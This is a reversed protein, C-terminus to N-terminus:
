DGMILYGNKRLTKWMDDPMSVSTFYDVEREDDPGTQKGCRTCKVFAAEFDKAVIRFENSERRIRKIKALERCGARACKKYPNQLESFFRKIKQM